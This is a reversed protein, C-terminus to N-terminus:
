QFLTDAITYKVRDPEIDGQRRAELDAKRRNRWIYWAGQVNWDYSSFSMEREGREREDTERKKPILKVSPLLDKHVILEIEKANTTPAYVQITINFPQLARSCVQVM